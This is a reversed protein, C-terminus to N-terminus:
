EVSVVVRGGASLNWAAACEPCISCGDSAASLADLAYGCAPCRGRAIMARRIREGRDRWVTRLAAVATLLVTMAPALVVSFIALSAAQPGLAWFALAILTCLFGVLLISLAAPTRLGSAIAARAGRADLPSWRVLRVPTNRDDFAHPRLMM